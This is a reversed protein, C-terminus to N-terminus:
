FDCGSIVNCTHLQSTHQLLNVKLPLRWDIKTKNLKQTTAQPPWRWHLLVKALVEDEKLSQLPSFMFATFEYLARIPQM